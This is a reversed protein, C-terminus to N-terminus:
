EKPTLLLAAAVGALGGVLKAALLASVMDPQVSMTFGVHAAFASAGCVVFAGCVVKGRRDMRPIMALAPTVSVMGILLGTTSVANLGTHRGIWGFPRRLLIQCLEALPMSGLMVIAISCAIEMADMLPTMGPLLPKGTMYAAAGLALGATALLGIGESFKRFLKLMGEPRKMLGWILLVSVALVPLCNWLLDGLPMKLMGGAIVMGVPMTGLGILIGRTFWPRDAAEIAGLGVPITFVVTCGFTASLIIGAFRGMQPSQALDMAMQYGGMDIALLSGLVAPDMRLVRFVPAAAIGVAASLLPALCVIGVMSLAIPGLLRFAEEFRRGLGFRNGLMRDAGGLIAGFAMIYMLIENMSRDGGKHKPKRVSIRGMAWRSRVSGSGPGKRKEPSMIRTKGGVTM